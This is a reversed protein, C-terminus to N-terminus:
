KSGISLSYPYNEYPIKLATITYQWDGAAAQPFEIKLDSSGKRTQKEGDPGTVDLQFVGGSGTNSLIFQLFGMKQNHYTKTVSPSSKSASLISGGVPNFGGKVLTETARAVDRATVTTFVLYRLLDMEQRSNQKENHFATFLITGKQFPIKVLLPSRKTEGNEAAYDGKLYVTMDRSTLAAPYWGPLDFRLSLRDGILKKLDEDVVEANLTQPRGTVAISTEVLDPFVLALIQFRWDSAYLTGGRDLFATLSRRLRQVVAPNATGTTTGPRQGPALGGSEIWSDPVVGCTIFVVDYQGLKESDELAELPITDYKYGEGLQDLLKGMDDYQPPTVALRLRKVPTESSLETVVPPGQGDMATSLPSRDLTYVVGLAAILALALIVDRYHLAM